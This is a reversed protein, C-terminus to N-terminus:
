LAEGPHVAATVDSREEVLMPVLAERRGASFEQGFGGSGGGREAPRAAAQGVDCDQLQGHWFSRSFLAVRERRWLGTLLGHGFDEMQIDRQKAQQSSRDKEGGTLRSARHRRAVEFVRVPTHVRLRIALFQVSHSGRTAGSHCQM